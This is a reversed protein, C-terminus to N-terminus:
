NTSYLPKDATVLFLPTSRYLLQKEKNYVQENVRKTIHVNCYGFEPLHKEDWEPRWIDNFYLVKQFNANDESSGKYTNVPEGYLKRYEEEDRLRARNLEEDKSYHWNADLYLLRGGPKLVRLWEKFAMEPQYLIWTVNRCVIYDFSNDDFDMQHNDMQYYKARIGAQEANKQAAEIMKESCDIGTAEWGLRGLLISFFGPGTGVDLVKGTELPAHETLLGSWKQSLEKSFEQQILQDYGDASYDWRKGIIKAEMDM